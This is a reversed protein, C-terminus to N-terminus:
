IRFVVAFSTIRTRMESAKVFSRAPPRFHIKPDLFQPLAPAFAPRIECREGHTLGAAEPPRIRLNNHCGLKM